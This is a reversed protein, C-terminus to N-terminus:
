RSDSANSNRQIDGNLQFKGTSGVTDLSYDMKQDVTYM